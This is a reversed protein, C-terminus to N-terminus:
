YFEAVTDKDVPILKDLDANHVRLHYFFFPDCGNMDLPSLKGKLLSSQAFFLSYPDCLRPILLNSYLTIRVQEIAKTIMGKHNAVNDVPAAFAAGIDLNDGFGIASFDFVV